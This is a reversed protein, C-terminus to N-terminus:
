MKRISLTISSYLVIKGDATGDDRPSKGVTRDCSIGLRVQVSRKGWSFMEWQTAGGMEAMLTGMVTFDRPSMVCRKAREPVNAVTTVTVTSGPRPFIPIEVGSFLVQLCHFHIQPVRSRHSLCTFTGPRHLPRPIACTVGTLNSGRASDLAAHSLSVVTFNEAM